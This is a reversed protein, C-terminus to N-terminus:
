LNSACPNFNPDAKLRIAEKKLLELADLENYNQRVQLWFNQYESSYFMSSDESVANKFRETLRERNNFIESALSINGLKKYALRQYELGLLTTFFSGGREELRKGYDLCTYSIGPRRKIEESCFEHVKQLGYNPLAAVYGNAMILAENQFQGSQIITNYFFSIIEVRFNDYTPALAVQELAYIAAETDGLSIYISAIKEWLAGNEGDLEVARNITNMSCKDNAPMSSCSDLLHYNILKNDPYEAHVINLENIRKNTQENILKKRAEHSLTSDLVGIEPGIIALMQEAESTVANVLYKNIAELKINWESESITSNLCATKDMTTSTKADTSVVNKPQATSKITVLTPKALIERQLAENNPQTKTSQQYYYGIAVLLTLVALSTLLKKM